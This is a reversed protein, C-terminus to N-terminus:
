EIDLRGTFVAAAWLRSMMSFQKIVGMHGELFFLLVYFPGIIPFM